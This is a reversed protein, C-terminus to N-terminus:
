ATGSFPNTGNIPVPDGVRGRGARKAAYLATDASIYLDRTSGTDQRAHAAGASISLALKRGDALPLPQEHVTRVFDEARRHATDYDCGPMLVALEDGGMRALVDQPRSRASLVAAIHILADDGVAHGYTDNITKFKDVDILILATGADSTASSIASVADDLVRRTVLGTLPDVSAQRRLKEVLRHQNVMARTLVSGMLILMGGTFAVDTLAQDLPLLRLVVIAEGTIAAVTVLISGPVRLHVAAYLVPMTFFIQGTLGADDTGLDLVVVSAIGLLPGIVCLSAARAPTLAIVALCFLALVAGCGLQLPDLGAEDLLAATFFVATCSGLMIAIWARAPKAQRPGLGRLAVALWASPRTVM